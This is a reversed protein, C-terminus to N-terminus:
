NEETGLEVDVAYPTEVAGIEEVFEIPLVTYTAGTDIIVGKLEAGGNVGGIYADVEVHGM